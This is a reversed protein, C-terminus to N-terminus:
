LAPWGHLRSLCNGSAASLVVAQGSAQMGGIEQIYLSSSHALTDRWREAGDETGKVVLGHLPLSLFRCMELCPSCCKAAAPFTNNEKRVEGPGGPGWDTCLVCFVNCQYGQMTSVPWPYSRATATNKEGLFMFQTRKLSQALPRIASEGLCLTKFFGSNVHFFRKTLSHVFTGEQAETFFSRKKVEKLMYDQTLLQPLRPKKGKFREKSLTVVSYDMNELWNMLPFMGIWCLLSIGESSSSSTYPKGVFFYNVFCNEFCIFLHNGSGLPSLCGLESRGPWWPRLLVWVADLWVADWLLWAAM